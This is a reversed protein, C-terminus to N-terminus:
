ASGFIDTAEGSNVERPERSTAPYEPNTGISDKVIVPSADEVTATLACPASGDRSALAGRQIHPELIGRGPRHAVM